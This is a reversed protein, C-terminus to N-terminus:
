IATARHCLSEIEREHILAKQLEMSINLFIIDRLVDPKKDYGCIAADRWIEAIWSSFPRNKQRNGHLRTKADQVRNPDSFLTSLLDMMSALSPFNLRGNQIFGHLHSKCDISLLSYVYAMKAQDTPYHDSNAHLRLLVGEKWTPFREKDGHFINNGAEPLTATRSAPLQQRDLIDALRTLVESQNASSSSKKELRRIKQQASEFESTARILEESRSLLTQQVNELQIATACLQNNQQALAKVANLVLDPNQQVGQLFQSSDAIETLSGLFQQISESPSSM